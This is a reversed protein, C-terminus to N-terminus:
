TIQVGTNALALQLSFLSHQCHSTYSSTAIDGMTDWTEAMTLGGEEGM